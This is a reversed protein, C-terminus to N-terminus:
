FRDKYPDNELTVPSTPPASRGQAIEAVVSSWRTEWAPLLRMMADIDKRIIEPSTDLSYLKYLYTKGTEPEFRWLGGATDFLGGIKPDSLAQTSLLYNQEFEEGLQDWIVDHSVLIAVEVQKTSTAYMFQLTGYSVLIKDTFNPQSLGKSKIVETIVNKAKEEDTLMAINKEHKFGYVVIGIVFFIAAVILINKM